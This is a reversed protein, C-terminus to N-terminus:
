RTGYVVSSLWSRKWLERPLPLTKLVGTCSSIRELTPCRERVNDCVTVVYPSSQKLFMSVNRSEHLSIDFGIQKMAKVALPNLGKPAIGASLAEFKDGAVHRLYM